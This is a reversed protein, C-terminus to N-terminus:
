LVMNKKVTTMIGKVVEREQSPYRRGTTPDYWKPNVAYAAMHLPSNLKNWRGHIFSQLQPWLTPDRRDIISQIRECMSDMNEYIQGLCPANKDVYRLM